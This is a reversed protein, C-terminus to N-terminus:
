LSSAQTKLTHGTEEVLLNMSGRGPSLMTYSILGPAQARRLITEQELLTNKKRHLEVLTNRLFDVEKQRQTPLSGRQRTPIILTETSSWLSAQPLKGSLSGPSHQPLLKFGLVVQQTSNVFCSQCYYERAADAAQLFVPTMFM